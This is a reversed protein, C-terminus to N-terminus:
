SFLKGIACCGFPMSMMFYLVCLKLEDFFKLTDTHHEAPAWNGQGDIFISHFGSDSESDRHIYVHPFPFLDQVIRMPVAYFNVQFCFRPHYRSREESVSKSAWSNLRM